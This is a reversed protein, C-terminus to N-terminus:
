TYLPAAHMGAVALLAVALLAVALIAVALLAMALLAMALLPVCERWLLEEATAAAMTLRRRLAAEAAVGAATQKLLFM